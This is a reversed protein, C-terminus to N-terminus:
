AGHVSKTPCRVASLCGFEFEFTCLRVHGKEAPASSSEERLKTCWTCWMSHNATNSWHMAQECQSPTTASESISSLHKLPKEARQRRGNAARHGRSGWFHKQRIKRLVFGDGLRKAAVCRHHKRLIFFLRGLQEQSPQFCGLWVCGVFLGGDCGVFSGNPSSLVTSPRSAQILAKGSGLRDM